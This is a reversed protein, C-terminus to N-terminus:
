EPKLSHHRAFYSRVATRGSVDLLLPVKAPSRRPLLCVNCKGVTLLAAMQGLYQKGLWILMTVNGDMALRLQARRLRMRM